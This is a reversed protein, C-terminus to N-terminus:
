SRGGCVRCRGDGNPSNLDGCTCRAVKGCKGCNGEEETPGPPDCGCVPAPRGEHEADEDALTRRAHDLDLDALGDDALDGHREEPEVNPEDAGNPECESVHASRSDLHGMNADPIRTQGNPARGNPENPEDGPSGFTLAWTSTPPFGAKEITLEGRDQLRKAARKVTADSCRMEGKVRAKVERGPLPRAALAALIAEETDAGDDAEPGSSLDDPGVDCEGTIVLRSVSGVHEVERGEVRAALTPAYAGHNSKAHVIVREAGQEGEPDEPHRAFALVSRPAAGFAVSGGVRALLKGAENKNLHAVGLVALDQREALAALPALVRRVAADRHTDTRAGIFASVPDVVVLGVPRGKAALAACAEEVAQVDDPLTLLEEGHRDEVAVRHVRGMDAGAAMLRGWVVSAFHDEASAILVDRPQGHLEGPLEGRSIQAALEATTTSKGLGAEGAVLSLGRLPLRRDWLWRVPEPTIASAATLIVRRSEDAGHGNRRQGADEGLAQRLDEATLM